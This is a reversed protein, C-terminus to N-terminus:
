TKQEQLVGKIMQVSIMINFAHTIPLGEDHMGGAGGGRGRGGGGRVLASKRQLLTECKRVWVIVAAALDQGKTGVEGWSDSCRESM